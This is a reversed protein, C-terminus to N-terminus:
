NTHEKCLKRPSSAQAREIGPRSITPSNAPSTPTLQSALARRKSTAPSAASTFSNSLNLESPKNLQDLLESLSFSSGTM